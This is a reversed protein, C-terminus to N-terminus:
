VSTEAPQVQSLVITQYYGAAGFGISCALGHTAATEAAFAALDPRPIVHFRALWGRLGARLPAPLGHMAGFDMIHLSGAQSLLGCAHIIAERWAPIMSICYPMIVRNFHARGLTRDANFTAADGLALVAGLGQRAHASKLMEASIDIGYLVADPWLRRIMALNRGTGCGIELVSGGPPVALDRLMRDRGFLYYKRTLDYIHRQWRYVDDMLEAHGDWRTGATM